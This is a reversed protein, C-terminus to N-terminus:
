ASTAPELEFGILYAAAVEQRMRQMHQPNVQTDNM